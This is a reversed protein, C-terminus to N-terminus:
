GKPKADATKEAPAAGPLLVQQDPLLKHVGATVIWAMFLSAFSRSLIMVM